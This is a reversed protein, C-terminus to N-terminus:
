SVLALVLESGTVWSHSSCLPSCQGESDRLCIFDQFRSLKNDVWTAAHIHNRHTQRDTQRYTQWVIVKLAKVYSTRIKVDPTNGPFVPWTRIHLDDPWPWPWPWLLLFTSIRIGAIYFKSRGYSRNLLVYLRSTQTYWIPNEAIFFRLHSRWRQWTVPLSWTYSFARM